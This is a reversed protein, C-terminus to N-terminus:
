WALLIGNECTWVPRWLAVSVKDVSTSAIGSPNKNGYIPIPVAIGWIRYSGELKMKVAM